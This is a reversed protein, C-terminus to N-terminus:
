RASESEEDRAGKEAKLRETMEKLLQDAEQKGKAELLADRQSRIRRYVRKQQKKKMTELASKMLSEPDIKREDSALAIVRRMAEPQEQLCSTLERVVTEGSLDLGLIATVISRAQEDETELATLNARYKSALVPKRLLAMILDDEASPILVEGIRQRRSQDRGGPTRPKDATAAYEKRLLTEDVGIKQAIKKLLLDKVIPDNHFRVREMMIRALKAKGGPTNLDYQRSYQRLSFDFFDEGQTAVLSEFAAADHAQFFDFPDMGKDLTVVTVDLDQGLLKEVGRGAARSGAEDGDFLLIVRNVMRRLLRAHDDTLATGLTAVTQTVGQGHAGIVDTFGEVVVASKGASFSPRALHLGYFSRSKHFIETEPSNIYKPLTDDLVRGGFGIVRGQMDFIPLILRNRFLDYTRGSDSRRVLGTKLLAPETFGAALLHQKLAEWGGPAFGIRFRACLESDIKRNQLYRLAVDGAASKLNGEFWCAAEELVKFLMPKDNPRKGQRERSSRKVQIGCREGLQTLAEVFSIGEIAMVFDFIDGSQKCGFCHFFQGQQNVSFSPTKEAHFPCLALFNAGRQNLEIYSGVIDVIDLSDKIRRVVDDESFSRAM